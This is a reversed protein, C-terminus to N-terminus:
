IDNNTYDKKLRKLLQPYFIYIYIYVSLITKGCVCVENGLATAVQKTDPSWLVSESPQIYRM